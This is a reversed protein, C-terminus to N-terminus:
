WVKWASGFSKFQRRWGAWAPIVTSDKLIFTSDGKKVEATIITM